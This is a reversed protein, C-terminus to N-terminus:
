QNGETIRGLAQSFRAATPHDALAQDSVNPSWIHGEASRHLIHKGRNICVYRGSEVTSDCSPPVTPPHCACALIGRDRAARVADGRTDANLKRFIRRVHTKITNKSLHLKLGIEPSTYHEALLRIVEVERDTLQGGPAPPKRPM